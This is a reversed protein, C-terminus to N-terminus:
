IGFRGRMAAWITDMNAKTLATGQWVAMCGLRQGASAPESGGGYACIQTTTTANSASPSAYTSNFTDSASVQNYAGDTYFFGGGSGTAETLSIGIMHWGNASLASDTVVFLADSSANSVTLLLTALDINIRIGTTPIGGGSNAFFGISDSAGDQYYFAVLSFVASNKHLTQMWAENTTDYTFYDGGDLAWYSGLVGASGTFTPDAADSGTGSGRYFDYGAGSRDLWKDTQVSPDYSSVDGADLCLKLNTTLSATTLASMLTVGGGGSGVMMQQIASM